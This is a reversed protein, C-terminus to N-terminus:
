AVIHNCVCCTVDTCHQLWHVFFMANNRFWHIQSIGIRRLYFATVVDKKHRDNGAPIRERGRAWRERTPGRHNPLSAAFICLFFSIVCNKKMGGGWLIDKLWRKQLGCYHNNMLFRLRFYRRNAAVLKFVTASVGGDPALFVIFKTSKKTM